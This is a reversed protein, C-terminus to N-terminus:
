TSGGFFRVSVFNLLVLIALVIGLRLLTQNRTTNTTM